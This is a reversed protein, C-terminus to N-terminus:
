AHPNNAGDPGPQVAFYDLLRQVSSVCPDVKGQAIKTLTHYPVGSHEAVTSWTGKTEELQRRVTVMIPEVNSLVLHRSDEQPIVPDHRVASVVTGDALTIQEGPLLQIHRPM